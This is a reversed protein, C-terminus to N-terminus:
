PDPLGRGDWRPHMTELDLEWIGMRARLATDDDKTAARLALQHLQHHEDADEVLCRVGDPIQQCRLRVWRIRDIDSSRRARSAPRWAASPPTAPPLCRCPTRV